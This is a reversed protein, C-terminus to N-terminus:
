SRRSGGGCRSLMVFGTQMPGLVRWILMMGAILAGATMAGALVSLVGMVVAALGSILKM